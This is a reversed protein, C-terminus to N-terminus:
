TRGRKRRNKVGVVSSTGKWTGYRDTFNYKGKSKVGVRPQKKM